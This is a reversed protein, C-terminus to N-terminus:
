ESSVVQQMWQCPDNLEGKVGLRKLHPNRWPRCNRRCLCTRTAHEMWTTTPNSLAKKWLQWTMRAVKNMRWFGRKRMQPNKKSTQKMQLVKTGLSAKLKGYLNRKRWNSANSRGFDVLFPSLGSTKLRKTHLSFVTSSIRTTRCTIFSSLASLRWGSFLYILM